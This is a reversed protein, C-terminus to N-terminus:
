VKVYWPVNIVVIQPDGSLMLLATLAEGRQAHLLHHYWHREVMESVIVAIQRGPYRDKQRLVYEYIPTVVYRFPSDIVVLEPAPLNHERAPQKVWEDWRKRLDDTKEGANIHLAQVERSVSLAFRLAKLAVQNWGDIPVLAVPPQVRDLDIPRTSAIERGVRRYHRGIAAMMLVLAPIAVITMWAGETFKAAVVILVTIGTATAGTANIALSGYHGKQRRWHAVMGAQSMTFALFAGVAFLPILRDTVGGFVILLLASFFSLAYVGQSYVLRRGKM